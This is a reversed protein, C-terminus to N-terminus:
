RWSSFTTVCSPSRMKYPPHAQLPRSSVPGTDCAVQILEPRPSCSATCTLIRQRHHLLLLQTDTYYACDAAASAHHTPTLQCCKNGPRSGRCAGYHQRRRDFPHPVKSSCCDAVACLSLECIGGTRGIGYAAASIRLLQQWTPKGQCRLLRLACVCDPLLALSLVAPPWYITQNHYHDPKFALLHLLRRCSQMAPRHVCAIKCWRSSVM